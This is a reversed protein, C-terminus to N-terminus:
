LHMAQFPNLKEERQYQRQHRIKGLHFRKQKQTNMNCKAGDYVTQRYLVLIRSKALNNINLYKNNKRINDFTLSSLAQKM